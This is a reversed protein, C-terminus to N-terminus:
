QRPIAMPRIAGCDSALWKGSADIRTTKPAGQTGNSVNMKMTYASDGSFSFEGEGSSPPNTCTFKIKMGTSTKNSTSSTCNGQQQVPVQNREAMEKTVCMKAVMGGGATGAMQVGQKAMMDEMMKRQAPPMSAMQQQMQSMSQDMEPSGGVKNTVEWLGPKMTQASSSAAFLVIAAFFFVPRMPTNM